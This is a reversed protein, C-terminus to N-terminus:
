PEWSGTVYLSYRDIECKLRYNNGNYVDRIYPMEYRGSIATAYMKESYDDYDGYQGIITFALGSYQSSASYSVEGYNNSNNRTVNDTYEIANGDEEIMSLYFDFDGGAFAPVTMMMVAVVTLIFTRIKNKMRMVITEKQVFNNKDKTIVLKNRDRQSIIIAMAVYGIIGGKNIIETTCM